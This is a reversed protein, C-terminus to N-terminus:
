CFKPAVEYFLVIVGSDTQRKRKLNLLFNVPLTTFLLRGKTLVVPHIWLILEDILGASILSQVLQGSGFIMMDRGQEQKM